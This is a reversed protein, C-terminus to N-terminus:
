PRQMIRRKKKGEFIYMEKHCKECKAYRVAAIAGVQIFM